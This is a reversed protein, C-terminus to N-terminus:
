QGGGFVVPYNTILTNFDADSAFSPIDSVTAVKTGGTSDPNCGVYVDGAYRGNGERELAYANKAYPGTGDGNGAIEAYRIARTKQDGDQVTTYYINNTVAVDTPPNDYQSEFAYLKGDYGYMKVRNEAIYVTNEDWFPYSEIEQETANNLCVWYSQQIDTIPNFVAPVDLRVARLTVNNGDTVKVYDGVKRATHPQWEPANALSITVYETDEPINAEGHVFQCARSAITNKGQAHSAEGQAKTQYGESHCGPMSAETYYGESHSNGGVAKTGNGEAHCNAGTAETGYGEAYSRTGSATTGVGSAFSYSGSATVNQGFAFSGTGITTSAKRGKSLTNNLITNSKDAKNNLSTELATFEQYTPVQVPEGGIEDIWVKTQPSTPTEDQVVIIDDVYDEVDSKIDNQDQVTWYDTGKVPTYGDDGKPGQAGTAGTDGKDGKEGQAGTDGKDGKEGKPGTDGTEGKEGQAGTDGKPGQIGQPGREGTDGKEGQIGQPGIEGQIGQPGQIGQIGQPGQEGTDGKDGKEGQPGQPGDFEGSDKAEQLADFITQPIAGLAENADILWNAVPDPIEGTPDISKYIKTKGCYSKMVKGNEVFALQIEGDGDYILDSNSVQWVVINEQRETVAPYSEGNPATVSLAPVSSPYQDFATTCDFFVVTHENEGVFGLIIDKLQPGLLNIYLPRM